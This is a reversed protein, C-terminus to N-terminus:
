LAKPFTIHWILNTEFRHWKKWALTFHLGEKEGLSRIGETDCDDSLIMVIMSDKKMYSKVSGFLRSFYEMHLGCYWAYEGETVPDKKFYPPNVIILDFVQSPISLFLDSHIITLGAGNTKANEKLADAATRNIDTATVLAGQLATTISILGSGCGLELLKKEKLDFSGLHKLLFGTSYFYGPHFVGPPVKLRINGTVYTREVSLHRQLWRQRTRRM